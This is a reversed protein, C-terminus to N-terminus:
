YRAPSDASQAGAARPVAAAAPTASLQKRLVALLTSRELYRDPLRWHITHPDPVRPSGPGQSFLPEVLPLDEVTFVVDPRTLVISRIRWRAALARIEGLALLTLISAPPPGFVDRLEQGLADIEAPAACSTLRKYVEMRQRDARIYSRPIAARIGLDLNVRPPEPPAEKNQRRVAQNLLQCYMEYGVAEIHGSQEAGLINGAGRIELDRMAIQFGAGVQSYHEIAKLRKAANPLVPHKPSLLLYAYARHRSRGVRGRLQHLEALGFREARHIFMTNATPIDIGSEIITTSVLVDAERRVFRLMVDELEHENMQGHGVVVRADPVLQRIRDAMSHIDRVFNHVFFVQGDRNLERIIAERVLQDDWMRVQTLIARRDMPATALSSIDKIGLMAMHLTRPIPTATMTLVDVTARLRKLSEKAEVGFRQEEDIILLGLDAFRVDKSLLRHTGILIDVQGKRAAEVIRVQEARTRFRSLVEVSFPYDALRERLTMYHQEALVTTPVLVAVQKGYEVVKFAARMALETKGYGVDGCLLRDMPRQRTLDRKIEDLARLQDPTETYIFSGEFERQWNTDQPYAVGESTERQAQVALLEAALDTVAESVREKARKWASGGVRSLKPRVGAAGVYKQVLDIQSVPVHIVAQNAFEIALYEDDDRPAAPEDAPRAAGRELARLGLFKGIGHAVHVVHDGVNLDFFTDIPRAPQVRRLTRRQRYRGFLEHHPVFATTGWRFGRHLVGVASSIRGGAVGSQALLEAFRVREPESDCLIRVDNTEALERLAALANAGAEFQPLSGVDLTVCREGAAGAFRALHLAAFQASKRLVADVPYMGAPEGLRQWYTRGFEQVELPEHFAVLADRPLYNLFTTTEANAVRGAAGVAAAGPSEVSRAGPEGAGPPAPIQVHQLTEASRQTSLDFLRISEVQDGFFEVRVPQAHGYSYVDVIGGRHAYDGPVDVQDCREFGHAHLWEALEDPSLGMGVSLSKARAEIAARTPVPQMLAQVPAVIMGPPAASLMAVCLRLREAALEDDAHREGPLTELAPLLEPPTGLATQIDDRFDDAEDGHATILLLPRHSAHAVFAALLPACSGWLGDVFVPGKVEGLLETVRRLRADHRIVSFDNM